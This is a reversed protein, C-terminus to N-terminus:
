YFIYLFLTPVLYYYFIIVFFTFYFLYILCIIFTIQIHKKDDYNKEINLLIISFFLKKKIKNMLDALLKM